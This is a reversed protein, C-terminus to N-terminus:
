SSIENGDVREITAVCKSSSGLYLPNLGNFSISRIFRSVNNPFQIDVHMSPNKPLQPLMLLKSDNQSKTTNLDSNGRHM